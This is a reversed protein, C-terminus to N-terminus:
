SVESILREMLPIEQSAGIENDIALSREYFDKAKVKDGLAHAIEGRRFLIMGKVSLCRGSGLDSSVSDITEDAKDLANIAEDFRNMMRLLLATEEYAVAVNYKNQPSVRKGLKNGFATIYVQGVMVKFGLGCGCMTCIGSGQKIRGVPAKADFGCNPCPLRMSGDWAVQEQDIAIERTIINSRSGKMQLDISKRFLNLAKKAMSFEALEGGEEIKVGPRYYKGQWYITRTKARNYESLGKPLIVYRAMFFVFLPSGGMIAAAKFLNEEKMLLSLSVYGKQEAYGAILLTAMGLISAGIVKGNLPIQIGLEWFGYKAWHWTIVSSTFVLVAYVAIESSTMSGM